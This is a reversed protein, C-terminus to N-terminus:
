SSSTADTSPPIFRNEPNEHRAFCALNQSHQIDSIKGIIHIRQLRHQTVRMDLDVAMASAPPNNVFVLAEPAFKTAGPASQIWVALGLAAVKPLIRTETM